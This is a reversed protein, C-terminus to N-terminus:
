NDFMVLFDLSTRYLYESTNSGGEDFDREADLYFYRFTTSGQTGVFGSLAAQVARALDKADTYSGAWCDIQVRAMTLDGQGEDTYIPAGDVRIVTISPRDRAQVRRGPWVRQGALASVGATARLKAVIAGEM